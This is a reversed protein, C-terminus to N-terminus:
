PEVCDFQRRFAMDISGEYPIVILFMDCELIRLGCVITTNGMNGALRMDLNFTQERRIVGGRKSYPMAPTDRHLIGLDM